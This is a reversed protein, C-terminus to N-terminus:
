IRRCAILRRSGDRLTTAFWYEDGGEKLRLRKRLDAVSAPFNRVTLNARTTGTMFDRLERKGFGATREVRFCRGPFDRVERDSTYLHSNPHLKELGFRIAALKFAGAKMLVPSPEYLFERVKEAWVPQAQEEEEPRFRFVTGDKEADCDACCLVPGEAGRRLVLLLEKCEGAAGTVHAEEVCGLQTLAEHLDLMPSLKLMVYRGKELLLPLLEAVDPDCDGIRVTKRGAGDRRAPDMFLLDVPEMRRLFDTGDAETVVAEPLGLLPFNHRAAACLEPQREVYVARGFRRAVFSFDVGLGGTLDAMTGGAPLLRGAVAAKYRAAAEGSCQELALRRPYDLDECAAWSPVKQRLRQWGEIRRLVRGADLEKRGALLLAVDEVRRTRHERIFDEELM